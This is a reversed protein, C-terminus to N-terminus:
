VLGRKRALELLAVLGRGSQEKLFVRESLGTKDKIIGSLL